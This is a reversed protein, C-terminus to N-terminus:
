TDVTTHVEVVDNRTDQENASTHGLTFPTGNGELVAVM